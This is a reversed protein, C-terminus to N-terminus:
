GGVTPDALLREALAIGSLVAGEVRGGACWDGAIGIRADDDFLVADLPHPTRAFAWRRLATAHTTPREIGTIRALADVLAREIEERPDRLHTRSWEPAAHLIWTERAPRQPKSGDRAIWSLIRDPDGERGVFLGDFPLDRLAASETVFAVALCPEFPVESAVRALRPSASELLPQAQAPPIAVVLHDYAGLDVLPEQAHPDRPALTTGEAGVLGALHLKGERREVRDVRHSRRLDLGEALTEAIAGMGPVGVWRAVPTTEVPPAGASAIAGIRARWPQAVGRETWARVRAAFRPDRVTFYQAGLDAGLARGPSLRGGPTRGKDFVVVEVGREQLTQACALGALGGGVIAVRGSM